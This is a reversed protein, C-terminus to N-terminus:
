TSRELIMQAAARMATRNARIDHKLPYYGGVRKELLGYAADGTPVGAYLAVFRCAESYSEFVVNYEEPKKTVKV